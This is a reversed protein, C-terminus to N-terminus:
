VDGAVEDFIGQMEPTYAGDREYIILAPLVKMEEGGGKIGEMLVFEGESGAKSHVLRMRKAEIGAGRLASFLGTMRRAKYILYFRGLPKLLYSAAAMFDELSGKLEHRAIAKQMEPNTRGSGPKRYPPNCTVVDYRAADQIAQIRRVDGGIIEIRRDLHNLSVSRRAMDAMEDQVELGTIKGARTRASLLLPIIASGAGLDFVNEGPAVIVFHALLIADLSFRYGKKKQIIKLKGKLLDDLSEDEHVLPNETEQTKM